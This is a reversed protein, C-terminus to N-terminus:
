VQTLESERHEIDRNLDYESTPDVPEVDKAVQAESQTSTEDGGDTQTVQKKMQRSSFRMVSLAALLLVFAAIMTYWAWGPGWNYTSPDLRPDGSAGWLGEVRCYSPYSDECDLEIAVPFYIAFVVTSLLLFIMSSVGALTATKSRVKRLQLLFITICFMFAFAFAFLALIEITQFLTHMNEREENWSESYYYHTLPYGNWKWSAEDLGFRYDLSDDCYTSDREFVFWPGHISLFVLYFSVIALILATKSARGGKLLRIGNM